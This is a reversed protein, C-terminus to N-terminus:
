PHSWGISHESSMSIHYRYRDGRYKGEVYELPNRDADFSQRTTLMAYIPTNEGLLRQEWPQLLGIELTQEAYVPSVGCNERLISYLSVDDAIYQQVVAGIHWPLYCTEIALPNGGALRLRKLVVVQSNEDINLKKAIKAAAPITELALIQSGCSLNLDQMNETLSALQSLKVPFKESRVFAGKGQVRYITGSEELEALARRVTIRSVNYQECLERESPLCKETSYAGDRILQQLQQVLQAYKTKSNTDMDM